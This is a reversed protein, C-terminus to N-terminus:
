KAKELKGNKQHWTKMRYDLLRNMKEQAKLDMQSNNLVM